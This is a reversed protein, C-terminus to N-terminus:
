QPLPPSTAEPQLPPLWALRIAVLLAVGFLGAVFGAVGPWGYRAWFWGGATGLVSSGLYYLLLYLSSAQARNTLARRGVWSSAVSHAGFFGITVIVIGALIVALQDSLTLAVGAITAVMTLWLVKRRGFRGALHGIWASSASGVLYVAFIAGVATQSLSFPPALLRFGLYNYVTVFGGMVLFAEAFLWPLGPDRLHGLFSGPIERWRLAHPRFHASPPLSRWFALAALLALVGVLLVAVRWSAFDSLAGTVLRGAMGGLANGSIYLGMALGIAKAEMEEGLYAMAVAPVGSLTLGALARLVLLVPWSPAVAAALTLVASAFLAVVMVPKRGWVESLPGAILLSVALLGTSLSLALSSEAPSVHFEHTFIPLLPQVCYLV